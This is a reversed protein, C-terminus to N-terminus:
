GEPATSHGTCGRPTWGSSEDGLARRAERWTSLGQRCLLPRVRCGRDRRSCRDAVRRARARGADGCRRGDATQMVLKLHGQKTLTVYVTAFRGPKAENAAPSADLPCPVASMPRVTAFVTLTDLRNQVVAGVSSNVSYKDPYPGIM